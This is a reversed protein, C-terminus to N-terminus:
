ADRGLFAHGTEHRWALRPCVLRRLAVSPMRRLGAAASMGLPLRCWVPGRAGGGAAREAGELLARQHDAVVDYFFPDLLM